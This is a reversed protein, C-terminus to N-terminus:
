GQSGRQGRNRHAVGGWSMAEGGHAVDGMGDLYSKDYIKDVTILFIIFAKTRRGCTATVLPFPPAALGLLMWQM